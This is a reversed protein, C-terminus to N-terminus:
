CIKTEFCIGSISVTKEFWMELRDFSNHADYQMTMVNFLSHVNEGNMDDVNYGFFKLVTLM